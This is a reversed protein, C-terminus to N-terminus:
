ECSGRWESYLVKITDTWIHAPWSATGGLKSTMAVVELVWFDLKLFLRLIM